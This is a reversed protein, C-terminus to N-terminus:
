LFGSISLATKDVSPNLFTAIVIDISKFIFNNNLGYVFSSFYLNFFYLNFFNVYSAHKILQEM